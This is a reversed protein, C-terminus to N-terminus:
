VITNTIEGKMFETSQEEVMILTHSSGCEVQVYRISKSVDERLCYPKIEVIREIFSTKFQNKGLQGWENSGLGYLKPSLSDPDEALIVVHEHGVAVKRVSKVSAPMKFINTFIYENAAEPQNLLEEYFEELNIDDDSEHDKGSGYRYFM